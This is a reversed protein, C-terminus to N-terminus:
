CLFGGILSAFGRPWTTLIQGILIWALGAVELDFGGMLVRDLLKRLEVTEAERKALAARAEASFSDIRRNIEGTQKQVDEQLWKLQKEVADVRSEISAPNVVVGRAFAASGGFSLRGTGTIV